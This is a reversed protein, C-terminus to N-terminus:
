DRALLRSVDRGDDVEIPQGESCAPVEDPEVAADVLREDGPNL